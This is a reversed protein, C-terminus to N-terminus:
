LPEYAANGNLKMSRLTWRLTRAQAQTATQMPSILAVILLFDLSFQEVV